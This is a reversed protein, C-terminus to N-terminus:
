HRSLTSAPATLGTSAAARRYADRAEEVHGTGDLLSGLEFWLQAADRDAGVATLSHIAATYSAGAEDVRGETARIRGVLVHFQATILPATVGALSRGLDAQELAATLDGLLLYARARILHGDARDLPSAASWGLELEAQDLTALAAEPEPPDIKLQMHAVETRLRGVNRLDEGLEFLALARSALELASAAAGNRSEILSANWYASAKAIPSNAQDAAEMARKCMRMAHGTEGRQLYAGAVTITLQIAETSAELGLGDITSSAREGVEIARQFDGAERYCRSLAILEKLWGTSGEPMETLRELLLIAEDFDGVAELALAQTREARRRFTEAGPGDVEALVERVKELAETGQGSVLALEAYDLKLELEQRQNVTIGLLLQELTVGIREAMRQLLMAGPRRQGVEILSVYAVSVDEGAVHAQKLGGAIRAQKLRSGLVAPDISRSIAALEPSM